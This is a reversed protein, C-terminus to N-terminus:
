VTGNWFLEEIRPMRDSIVACQERILMMLKTCANEIVADTGAIVLLGKEATYAILVEDDLLERKLKFPSDPHELQAATTIQVTGRPSLATDIFTSYALRAPQHTLTSLVHQLEAITQQIRAVLPKSIMITMGM